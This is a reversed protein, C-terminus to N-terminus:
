IELHTEHLCVTIFISRVAYDCAVTAQPFLGRANAIDQTSIGEGELIVWYVRIWSPLSSVQSHVYGCFARFVNITFYVRLPQGHRSSELELFLAACQEPVSPSADLHLTSQNFMFRRIEFLPRISTQM